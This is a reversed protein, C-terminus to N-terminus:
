DAPAARRGLARSLAYLPLGAALTLLGLVAETPERVALFASAALTTTVFLAPTWPYGIVPVAKAGHRRRWLILGSVTAAASLGLCFGIYSLLERLGSFWVVAIALVVQLGVAVGPARVDAALPRPLLGDRAMRAYVHPGAMVMASISTFLALSVVVAVLHRGAEGALAGAAVAAVDARGAIANAPAAALFVANLALYLATVLGTGLLLSKQLNRGPERVEGAIYTAANWGSYAFSIWVLSVFFAGVPIRDPPESLPSAISPVRHMGLAILAVITALMVAVSINQTMIGARRRLGHMLGAALIALTGVWEARVPLAVSQGLYAQLGLAAAAIPGTFGALLSTWGAMFGAAPHVTRSLFLYEGGSEPFQRALAGYCLAGCLALVGGALWAWLVASPRGLDALAYGSTTFVGAGIMNAVVLAAASV